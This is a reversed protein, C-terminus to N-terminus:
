VLRRRLDLFKAAFDAHRLRRHRLHTVEDDALVRLVVHKGEPFDVLVCFLHGSPARENTTDNFSRSSSGVPRFFFIFVSFVVDSYMNSNRPGCQSLPREGSSTWCSM